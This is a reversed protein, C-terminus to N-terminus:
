VELEPDYIFKGDIVVWPIHAIKPWEKGQDRKCVKKLRPCNNVYLDLLSSPLGVEPFLTLNPCNWIKLSQLSTLRQFG